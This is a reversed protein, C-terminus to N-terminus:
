PAEEILPSLNETTITIGTETTISEIIQICNTGDCADTSTYILHNDVDISFSGDLGFSPLFTNNLFDLLTAQDAFTDDISYTEDCLTIDGVEIDSAPIIVLSACGSSLDYENPNPLPSPGLGPYFM